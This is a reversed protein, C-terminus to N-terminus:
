LHGKSCIDQFNRPSQEFVAAPSLNELEIKLFPLQFDHACYLYMVASVKSWCYKLSLTIIENQLNKKTALM